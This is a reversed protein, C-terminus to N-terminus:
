PEGFPYKSHFRAVQQWKVNAQMMQQAAQAALMQEPVMDRTSQLAESHPFVQPPLMQPPPSMGPSMGPLEMSAAEMPPLSNPVHVPSALAQAFAPTMEPLRQSKQRKAHQALWDALPVAVQVHPVPYPYPPLPTAIPSSPPALGHFPYQGPGNGGARGDSIATELKRRRGSASSARSTPTRASGASSAATSPRTSQAEIEQFLEDIDFNAGALPDEEM